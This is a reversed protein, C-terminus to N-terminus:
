GRRAYYLLLNRRFILPPNGRPSLLTYTVCVTLKEGGHKLGEIVVTWTSVVRILRHVVRERLNQGGQKSERLERKVRVARGWARYCLMEPTRLRKKSLM